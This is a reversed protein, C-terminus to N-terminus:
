LDEQTVHNDADSSNVACATQEKNTRIQGSNFRDLERKPVASGGITKFIEIVGQKGLKRVTPVSVRVRKAFEAVYYWNRDEHETAPPRIEEM